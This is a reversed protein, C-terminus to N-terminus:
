AEGRALARGRRSRRRAHCSPVAQPLGGARGHGHAPGGGGGRRARLEAGSRVGYSRGHAKRGERVRPEDDMRRHPCRESPRRSARRRDETRPLRRAHYAALARETLDDLAEARVRHLQSFGIGVGEDLEVDLRTLVYPTSGLRDIHARVDEETVAKTRAPEVEAGSAVGRVEALEGQSTRAFSFSVELPEGIRLRVAGEVEVRPELSDDEFAEKASRVRFVRDGARVGKVRADLEIRVRGKKDFSLDAVTQAAHGKGTWFELVDGIALEHEASITAIGNRAEAVRGIFAGRNNPRQYSM